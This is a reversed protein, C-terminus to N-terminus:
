SVEANVTCDFSFTVSGKTLPPQQRKEKAAKKFAKYFFPVMKGKHLSIKEKKTNEM